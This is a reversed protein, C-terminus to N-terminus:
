NLDPCDVQKFESLACTANVTTGGAAPFGPRRELKFELNYGLDTCADSIDDNPDSTAGAHDGLVAFCVNIDDAPMQYAGDVVVYGDGDRECEEIDTEVGGPAIQEVICEPEVVDPTNPDNDKACEAYCAPQLQSAIIDAITELAGAYSDDCISHMNDDTFNETFEKLRM